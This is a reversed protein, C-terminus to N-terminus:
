ANVEKSIQGFPLVCQKLSIVDTTIYVDTTDPGSHGLIASITEIPVANRVMTSAANHRLLHMGFIRDKKTIGAKAFIRKIIYYCTAHGALPTFPALERVFLHNSDTNPRSETVYRYIANGVTSILPLYVYNGTKSQQFSITDNQWDIDSLKLNILDCARIGSTLGLLVIAVNRLSIIGSELISNLSSLETETLTPIIRKTRIAHIGAISTILDNRSLYRCFSRLGCLVARQRNQKAQTIYQVLHKPRLQKVDYIHLDDLFNLFCLLEYDYFHQTNGNQYTGQLYDQYEAYIRHHKENKPILKIRPNISFDFRGSSYFSDLLRTLRGQLYYRSLSFVGTKKSVVDNAYLNGIAPTYEKVGHISCFEHFRRIVGQYNFITSDNYGEKQLAEILLTCIESVTM